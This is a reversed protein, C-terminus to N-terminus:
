YLRIPFAPTYSWENKVGANSPISHDAKRYPRKIGPLCEGTRASSGVAQRSVPHGADDLGYRRGYM